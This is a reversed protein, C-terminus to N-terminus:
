ILRNQSPAMLHDSMTLYLEEHGRSRERENLYHDSSIHHGHRGATQWLMAMKMQIVKYQEFVHIWDVSICVTTFSHTRVELGMQRQGGLGWVFRGWDGYYYYLVTAWLCNECVVNVTGILLQFLLLGNEQWQKSLLSLSPAPSIYANLNM